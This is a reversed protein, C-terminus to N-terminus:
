FYHQIFDHFMLSAKANRLQLTMLLAALKQYSLRLALQKEETTQEVLLDFSGVVVCLLLVVRGLVQRSHFLELQFCSAHQRVSVLPVGDSISYVRLEPIVFVDLHLILSVLTALCGCSTLDNVVAREIVQKYDVVSIQFTIFCQVNEVVEAKRDIDFLFVVKARRSLCKIKAFVVLVRQKHDIRTVFLHRAAVQGPM